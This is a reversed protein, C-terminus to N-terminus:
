KSEIPNSENRALVDLIACNYRLLGLVTSPAPTSKVICSLGSIADSSTEARHQLGCVGWKDGFSAVVLGGDVCCM